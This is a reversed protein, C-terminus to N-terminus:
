MIVSCTISDCWEVRPSHLNGIAAARTQFSKGCWILVVADNTVNRGHFVVRLQKKRCAMHPVAKKFKDLTGAVKHSVTV